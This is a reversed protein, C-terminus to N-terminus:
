NPRIEDNRASLDAGSFGIFCARIRFCVTIRQTLHIVTALGMFGNSGSHNRYKRWRPEEIYKRRVSTSSCAFNAQEDIDCPEQGLGHTITRQAIWSGPVQGAFTSAAINGFRDSSCARCPM